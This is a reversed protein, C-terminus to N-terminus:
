QNHHIISFLFSIFGKTAGADKDSSILLRLALLVVVVTLALIVIVLVAVAVGAIAEVLAVSLTPSVNAPPARVDTPTTMVGTPTTGTSALIQVACLLKLFAWLQKM